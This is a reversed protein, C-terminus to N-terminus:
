YARAYADCAMRKQGSGCHPIAVKFCVSSIFALIAFQGTYIKDSVKDRM